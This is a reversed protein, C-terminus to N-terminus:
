NHDRNDVKWEVETDEALQVYKEGEAAPLELARGMDRTKSELRLFDAYM